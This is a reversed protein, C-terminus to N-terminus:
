NVVFELGREPMEVISIVNIIPIAHWEGFQFEDLVGIVEVWTDDPFPERGGLDVDFGIMGDDGCCGFTHRIVFHYTYDEWQTTLFIGEYRITRGLYRERNMLIQNMQTVFFREGIELVGGDDFIAPAESADESSGNGPSLPLPEAQTGGPASCGALILLALAIALVKKM